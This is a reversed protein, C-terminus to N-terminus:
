PQKFCPEKMPSQSDGGAFIKGIGEDSVQGRKQVLAQDGGWSLNM